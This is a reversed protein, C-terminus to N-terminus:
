YEVDVVPDLSTADMQMHGSWMDQMHLVNTWLQGYVAASKIQFIASVCMESWFLVCRMLHLCRIQYLTRCLLQMPHAPQASLLRLLVVLLYILLQKSTLQLDMSARAHRCFCMLEDRCIAELVLTLM